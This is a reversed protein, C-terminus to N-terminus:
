RLLVHHIAGKIEDETFIVPPTKFEYVELLNAVKYQLENQFEILLRNRESMTM